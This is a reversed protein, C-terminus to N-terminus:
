LRAGLVMLAAVVAAAVVSVAAVALWTRTVAGNILRYATGVAGGLLVLGMLDWAAEGAVLSRWAVVVLLGYSMVIYALRDGARDIGIEREDRDVFGTM